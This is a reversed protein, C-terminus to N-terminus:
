RDKGSMCWGDPCTGSSSRPDAAPCRSPSTSSGPRPRAAASRGAAAPPPAAARAGSYQVSYQVSYLHRQGRVQPVVALEVEAGVEPEREPAVVLEAVEVGVIVEKDHDLSPLSAITKTLPYQLDILKFIHERNQCHFIFPM